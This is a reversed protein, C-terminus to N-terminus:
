GRILSRSRVARAEFGSHADHCDDQERYYGGQDRETSFGKRAEVAVICCVARVWMSVAIGHLVGHGCESLVGARLECARYVGARV